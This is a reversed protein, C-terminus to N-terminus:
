QHEASKFRLIADSVSSILETCKGSLTIFGAPLITSHNLWLNIGIAPFNNEDCIKVEVEVGSEHHHFLIRRYHVIRTLRRTLHGDLSEMSIEISTSTSDRLSEISHKLDSDSLIQHSIADDSIKMFGTTEMLEDFLSLYEPEGKLNSYTFSITRKM